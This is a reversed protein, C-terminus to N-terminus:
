NLYKDLYKATHSKESKAVEEPTGEAVIYGGDKGGGPGLDIIYDASIIVDMNHEIVLVTNGNDVLKNLVKLLKSVDESHLGVTPEDLIYLIDRGSKQVLEKAIKIRQAEGGSLTSAPQGLKLYGLGVQQLINLMYTIKSFEAFLMISEDVTLNLIEDINKGKYKYELVSKKFRKGGCEECTVVVDALFLMDIRQTGEGSCTKCRGSESNFSFHSSTFKKVIALPTNALVKRIEDYVKIYTVPTSRASRGIPSQDIMIIDSISDTGLINSVKGATEKKNKFKRALNSYIINNVLSSKGSGSVGTVCTFTRLPIKVDFNKLNNEQAGIVSLHADNCNRRESPPKILCKGLLYKKTYSEVSSKLFKKVPGQYVVRGGHEGSEPGLEIISDAAKIMSHDHEIVIVTNNRSKLEEIINILQGIDKSHLGISPEDMVYLTETLKSGLQCALNVRQSEGGSLSRTIRSLTLYQLGVKLLFESRNTIEKLLDDSIDREERSFKTKKFFKHFEDITMLTLDHISKGNIKIWLANEKLRSGECTGCTFAMRYKSIFIRIHMKYSKEELKKFFGLVGSFNGKGRFILQKQEESLQSYPLNVNINNNEAFECLQRQKFRYAPKTFPEIAGQLISIGQNPVVLEPSIDLKNGFGNCETCAGYPSNFSFLAPTPQQFNISCKSCKLEQIYTLPDSEDIKIFIRDSEKFATELSETLRSLSRKEIKLKDIVIECDEPFKTIEEIYRIENQSYFRTFGRTLYANPTSLSGDTPVMVICTSGNHSRSIENKISEPSQVTVENGCSPCYIRGVKAYLLRLFDYIETTTGVTSRSNRINNRSEIAIATPLMSIDDVDPKEIRELFQRAYTSLCEIYRRIGESYITNIALSSKGSGSLGTIVTYSGNPIKVNINKLNNERAGLVTIFENKDPKSPM